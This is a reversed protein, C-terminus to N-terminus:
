EANRCLRFGISYSRNKPIKNGRYACRLFGQQNKWYGGRIVHKSGYKPGKPDIKHTDTYADYKDYCWEYINGSMDCLGLANPTKGGVVHSGLPSNGLFWAYDEILTSVDFPDSTDGSIHDGPNWDTVGIYRAAYEWEAETPLRYGKNQWKVYVTDQAMANSVDYPATMGPNSYYVQDIDNLSSDALTLLNCFAVVDYWSVGYCPYDDGSGYNKVPPNGPWHSGNDEPWVEVWLKQTVETKGIWFNQTLDVKQIITEVNQGMNFPGGAPVYHMDFTNTNVSHAKVFGAPHYAFTATITIDKDPMIFTATGNNSSIVSPNIEVGPACLAVQVGSNMKATLTVKKGAGATSEFMDNDVYDDALGRCNITISYQKGDFLSDYSNSHELTFWSCSLILLSVTSIIIIKKM